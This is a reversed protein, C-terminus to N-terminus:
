SAFWFLQCFTDRGCFIGISSEVSGNDFPSAPTVTLRMTENCFLSVPEEGGDPGGGSEPRAEAGGEAAAADGGPGVGNDNPPRSVGNAAKKPGAAACPTPLQKQKKQQSPTVKDDGGGGNETAEKGGGGDGTKKAKMMAFLNRPKSKIVQAFDLKKTPSFSRSCSCLRNVSTVSGSSFFHRTIVLSRSDPM